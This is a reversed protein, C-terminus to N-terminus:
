NIHCWTALMMLLCFSWQAWGTQESSATQQSSRQVSSGVTWDSCLHWCVDWSHSWSHDCCSLAYAAVVDNLSLKSFHTAVHYFIFLVITFRVSLCCAHRCSIRFVRGARVLIQIQVACPSPSRDFISFDIEQPHHNIQRQLYNLTQSVRYRNNTTMMYKSTVIITWWWRSTYISTPLLSM